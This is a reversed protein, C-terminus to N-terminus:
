WGMGEVKVMGNILICKSVLQQIDTFTAMDSIEVLVKIPVKNAQFEIHVTLM